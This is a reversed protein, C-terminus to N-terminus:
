NERMTLIYDFLLFVESISPLCLHFLNEWKMKM